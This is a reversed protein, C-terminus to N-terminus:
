KKFLQVPGKVNKNSNIRRFVSDEAGASSGGKPHSCVEISPSDIGFNSFKQSRMVTGHPKWRKPIWLVYSFQSYIMLLFLFM